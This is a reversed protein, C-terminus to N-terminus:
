GERGAGSQLVPGPDLAAPSLLPLFEDAVRALQLALRNAEDGQTTVQDAVPVAIIAEARDVWLLYSTQAAIAVLHQDPRESTRPLGLRPRPDVVPLVAGQFALVGAIGPPAEPWPTLAAMPVVRVIAAAPLAFRRDGIRAILLLAPPDSAPPPPVRGAQAQSTRTTAPPSTVSGTLPPM